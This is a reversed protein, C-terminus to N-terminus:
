PILADVFGACDDGNILTDGNVDANSVNCCIAIAAHSAPDLLAAIFIPVDLADVKFDCNVDGPIVSRPGLQGGPWVNQAYLDQGGGSPGDSWALKSMGCGDIISALRGKGADRSCAEINSPTWVASGAANLRSGLVVGTTVSRADFWYAICGGGYAVSQAFSSQNSNLPMISVGEDGWMRAGASSIRQARVGWMNQTPVTVESWVLFSEDAIPDYSLGASIRMRGATAVTVPTGNHAFLEIGASNVHQVYALTSGSSEYWGFVAGGAGDPLFTPFAQVPLTGGDYIIRPSGANWQPAGAPSLKQCYLHRNSTICNSGTCRAWNVIVSGADGPQIDCLQYARSTPMPPDSLVVGGPGWQDVGASDLKHLVINLGEIWGVVYYGDSTAAVKPNHSGGPTAFVVGNAGWQLNGASDVKQAALESFNVTEYILVANDSADIALGYDETSSVSRDRVLVGNAAWQPNGNRDLRQLYPDYGGARNDFWSIYTGGGAANRVKAQTQDDAAAAIVTNLAANANWQASATRAAVVVAFASLLLARTRHHFM